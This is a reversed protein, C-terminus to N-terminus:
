EQTISMIRRWFTDLNIHQPDRVGRKLIEMQFKMRNRSTVCNDYRYELQKVHEASLNSIDLYMLKWNRHAIEPQETIALLAKKPKKAKEIRESCETLIDDISCFEEETLQPFEKALTKFGVGNIGSIKDSSDGIFSRATVFNEPTIGYKEKVNEKTYLKSGTHSYMYVNDRLLQLMDQDSSIIVIPESADRLKHRCLWGIVDDAECDDAYLQEIPTMELTAVTQAVQWGFNEPSDLDQEYLESRNLRLPKRGAKYDPLIARRRTSKGGEWAVIIRSARFKESVVGLSRLFGIWGGIPEGNNSLSPNVLYNRAFLNYGDILLIAGQPYNKNSKKPM